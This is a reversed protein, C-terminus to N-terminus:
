LVKNIEDLLKEFKLYGAKANFHGAGKVLTVKIGLKDAVEQGQELPVYVDNDSSYCVFEKCNMKIKAWNFPEDYFTRNIQDFENEDGLDRLFGEILYASKIKVDIKELIRLVFAVGISHGILITEANLDKLYMEFTKMWNDLSQGEPTPFKPVTTIIGIKELEQKLWPFWNEEPYGYAGHIIFANKM